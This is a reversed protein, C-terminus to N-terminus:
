FKVNMGFLVSKSSPYTGMDILDTSEPDLGSYNTATFLNQGSIYFRVGNVGKLTNISYGIEVNKLRFYSADEVYISSIKSSGNDEFAVRPITNSTGEGDWAGLVNTTYNFPRTDYDLIKKADNYRDVGEVGQFLISFDFNKYSSSFSIGYTFDPIPNGIFTRDDSNIIGDNNLDDFKIDGPKVNPNPTSSLHTDIESQNQYIGVMKYGYYANLSQGVETRTVQGILNPVNPHLKEVNNKLTGINANVNYKFKNTSERYNLSFEFGKNRVEGANVITPAVDGVISPLGIPLLIDTTNKVFYEASIALKNDLLGVDIGINTSESSEWKLNENGYRNVVVKGDTQSILTLFAYNDIEQNGLKGWGARLKLNSLWRVDKLFDEDSIKWGASVSPFYGWRNNESFRSSADARLNATVMYKDNFVYSASSFLSFLTWESASGSNWLDVESGGYDLYRFTDDTISFRARSAGISSTYNSIYETGVLASFDHKNNFTKNYNLTNNFTITRAEGREENLSNPRNKRGLGSDTANGGGDDDGFNEGFAKNHFFSLDVGINTRFKLEKDKLFAYEAYVNGFTRFDKRVDDTFYALAIPNSSWEYKDSEWGGNDRDNHKYFPLDTFPDSESYTPDNVDKYVSLVPPRLLAHRIIGPTDGKSSLKDQTAYSLQLNTGIQLRDTLEANINTRYNLKQYKDNDFIVIGDQGYYGLSMLFQLKDNGGSATVQLNQSKGQEFLENLWDTNSFDARGKDLTYPNTGTRDSNNWAMEVTNMYQEANMMNPLNTANNIGTYYDVNFSTKGKEGGKTTILVVGGSARSGYIAAAAADKLVTMSKIDAQNLFSIDRSPIGDVVYLPNNNGITGEGRIRVEVPDGPAGTSSTVQVGAIQGQLAQSVNTVRTKELDSMDVVSVAGTLTSKKRSSYGVLVVEDLAQLDESLQINIILQGNVSVEKTLYGIMSFVLIADPGVKEITYNGDFDTSAGISTGKVLVNVGPLTGNSDTVVGKITQANLSNGLLFLGFCFLNYILHKKIM